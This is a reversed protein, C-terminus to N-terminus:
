LMIKLILYLNYMAEPDAGGGLLFDQTRVRKMGAYYSVFCHQTQELRWINLYM